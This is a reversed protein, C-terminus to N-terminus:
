TRAERISLPDGDSRTARIFIDSKKLLSLFNIEKDIYIIKNNNPLEEKITEAYEKKVIGAPEVLVLLTNSLNKKTLKKFTEIVFDFGYCDLGGIEKMGRNPHHAYSSLIYEYNQIIKELNKDLPLINDQTPNIYPPIHRFKDKNRYLCSIKSVEELTENNVFIVYDSIFFTLLNYWKKIDRNNHHTYIIKKNLLKLFLILFIKFYEKHHIHAIDIEKIILFFSKLFPVKKSNITRNRLDLLNCIFRSDTNLKNILREIHISVGGPPPPTRGFIAINIKNM